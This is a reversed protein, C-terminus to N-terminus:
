RLHAAKSFLWLNYTFLMQYAVAVTTENGREQTVAMLNLSIEKNKQFAYRVEM